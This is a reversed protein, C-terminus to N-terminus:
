REVMTYGGERGNYRVRDSSQLDALADDVQEEIDGAITRVLDDFSLIEEREIEELLHAKLGDSRLNFQETSTDQHQSDNIQEEQDSGISHEAHIVPGIDEAIGLDHRGAQVLTRLYESQSMDLKDAEKVWEEKQYAPVRATIAVRETDVDEKEECM